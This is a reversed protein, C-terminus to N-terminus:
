ISTMPPSWLGICRDPHGSGMDVEDLALVPRRPSICCNPPSTSAPGALADAEARGTLSDDFRDIRDAVRTADELLGAIAAALPQPLRDLGPDSRRAAPNAFVM